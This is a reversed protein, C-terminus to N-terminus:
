SEQTKVVLHGSRIRPQPDLIGLGMTHGFFFFSNDYSGTIGSRPM